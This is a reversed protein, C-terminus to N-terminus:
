QRQTPVWLKRAIAEGLEAMFRSTAHYNYTNDNLTQNPNNYAVATVFFSAGTSRDLFYANDIQFGYAQGSKDVSFIAPRPVVRAIGPVYWSDAFGPEYRTAPYVPNKSELPDQSLTQMLLARHVDTLPFGPKGLDIEPRAIMILMDQLDILSVHNKTTFDFPQQILNGDWDYYRKGLLMSGPVQSPPLTLTATREPLTHVREDLIMDIQPTWRQWNEDGPESLRHRLRFSKLGADWMDKNLRDRGVFDFLRNYGENSSVFCVKRIEQHLTITGNYVNSDDRTTINGDPQRPYLMLPTDADLPLGTQEALRQLELLAAVCGAVKISSAPYIYEADVRYHYRKLVAPKGNREIVESVLIQVRHAEPDDFLGGYRGERVGLVDDFWTSAGTTTTTPTVACGTLLITLFAILAPLYKM